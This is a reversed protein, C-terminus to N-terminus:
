TAESLPRQKDPNAWTPYKRYVDDNLVQTQTQSRENLATDEPSVGTTACTVVESRRIASIRTCPHAAPCM